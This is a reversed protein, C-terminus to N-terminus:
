AASAAHPPSQAPTGHIVSELVALTEAACRSWSFQRSRELGAALKSRRLEPDTLALHIGQAISGVDEPDVLIGADGALERCGHRNATVIPCGSAMAELLPISFSEYLSPVLLAQALRYFSPLTKRDIWGPRHVWDSIGLRDIERMEGGCLWRHEGAVVLHIGLKPGVQAYAQVLRGFNKPPYIQGCYLAFREPLRYAARVSDLLPAPVLERFAEDVGLYVTQTRAAPVRLFDQVHQRTTDSVCVIRDAKRAYRPILLQHSLRDIWRSGWPMVYWDLGHCVWATPCDGTLPISYKPNFLLDVRERAALRRAAYQDWILKAPASEAVERLNPRGGFRGICTPDSYLFVFEHPTDLRLLERLLNHTYVHVGGGHQDIHRLMIGIRLSKGGRAILGDAQANRSSISSM